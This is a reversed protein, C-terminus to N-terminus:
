LAARAAGASESQCLLRSPSDTPRPTWRDAAHHTDLPSHPFSPNWRRGTVSRHSGARARSRRLFHSLAPSLTIILPSPFDGGGASGKRVWPGVEATFAQEQTVNHLLSYGCDIGFYGARWAFSAPPASVCSPPCRPPAPNRLESERGGPHCLHLFSGARACRIRVLLVRAPLAWARQLLQPM